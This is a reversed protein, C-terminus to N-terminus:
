ATGPLLWGPLDPIPGVYSYPTRPSRVWHCLQSYFLRRLSCELFDQLMFSSKLLCTTHVVDVPVMSSNHRNSDSQARESALMKAVIEAIQAGPSKMWHSVFLLCKKRVYHSMQLICEDRNLAASTWTHLWNPNGMNISTMCAVGVRSLGEGPVAHRSRDIFVRRSARWPRTM